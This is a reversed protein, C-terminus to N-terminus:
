APGWPTASGDGTTETGHIRLIDVELNDAGTVLSATINAPSFQIVPGRFPLVATAAGSFWGFGETNNNITGGTDPIEITYQGHGQNVWDHAGGTDTPTVATQTFVGAITVFNWQLDMGPENYVVAANIATGAATVMPLLNVPVESLAVDVTMKLDAM